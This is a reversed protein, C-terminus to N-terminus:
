ITQARAGSARSVARLLAAVRQEGREIAGAARGAAAADRRRSALALSRHDHALRELADALRRAEGAALPRLRAAATRYARALRGATRSREPASCTAALARRHKRREGNLRALAAPLAIRAATEPAPALESAGSVRLVGM